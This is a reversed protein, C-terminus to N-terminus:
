PLKLRGSARSGIRSRSAVLTAATANTIRTVKATTTPRILACRSRDSKLASTCDFAL